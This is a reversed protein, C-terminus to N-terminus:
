KKRSKKKRGPAGDRNPPSSLRSFRAQTSGESDAAAAAAAKPLLKREAIGWLSSAIFYVCLGAAVKFFLFGMFIMMFNMMKQQMAAQEDAPPPMFMKQQVIFLAITFLPLLNFYPGLYYPVLGLIPINALGSWDFLMDPAALDSCWRVAHSILPAGRLAVDVQLSRYLGIFIPLQIFVPLCGGLPNYNHKRFLEQQAKMRGEPDKKFKEQIKKIEPQLEQMKQASLAQKRSLPFMCLRVLVTLMIIALGYNWVVAHFFHLAKTMPVAVWGYWGFTIVDGIGYNALLAPKKPGVFLEYHDTLSKGPGITRPKSVLRFSTNTVNKREPEVEGVRLATAENVESLLEQGQPPLIAATFYLADVGVFAFPRDTQDDFALEGKDAIQLCTKEFVNTHSRRALVDRVGSGSWVGPHSVKSTYWHGEDPLGNPGDLRYAVKREKTDLNKVEVAVSLHYARYNANAMEEEPVPQLSYTKTIELAREPITRRFVAREQDAEVVEWNTKRLEVGQLEANLDPNAPDDDEAIKEDDIQSITGLLSLPSNKAPQIADLPRPATSLPDPRKREPRVVELPRRILTVPIEHPGDARQVTLTVTQGPKTRSMAPDFSAADDVEHGDVATIRDGPEIGVEAAPTGPGVAQVLAGGLRGDDEMILHGLYGSRDQLDRYEESSLEIRAVAAGQNDLTVLMRYPDAPDASGLTLWRRAIKPPAVAQAKAQPVPKEAPPKAMADGLGSKEARAPTKAEKPQAKDGEGSKEAATKKDKDQDAKAVQAPRRPPFFVNVIITHGALIAASLVFFWLFNSTSSSASSPRDAM